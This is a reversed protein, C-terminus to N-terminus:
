GPFAPNSDLRQLVVVLENIKIKELYFILVVSATTM